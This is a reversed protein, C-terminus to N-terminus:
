DGQNADDDGGSQGEVPRQGNTKGSGTVDPAKVPVTGPPAGIGQRGEFRLQELVKRATGNLDLRDLVESRVALTRRLGQELRWHAIKAHDGSLLVAPVGQGRFDPPRTYQPGELLGTTFSETHASTENGLVGPRLRAVADTVCLAAPEGGTLVYDGLSLCEDVYARVREDVGEYRGCVLILASESALRAATAQVFPAGQPDMLIVVPKQATPEEEILDARAAEIAAVLPEPKMVM